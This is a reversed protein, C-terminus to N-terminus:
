LRCEGRVDGRFLGGILDLVAAHLAGGMVIGGPLLRLELDARMFVRIQRFEAEAHGDQVVALVAMVDM